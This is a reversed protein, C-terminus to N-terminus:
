MLKIHLGFLLSIALHGGIIQNNNVVYERHRGSIMNDKINRFCRVTLQWCMRLAVYVNLYDGIPHRFSIVLTYLGDFCYLTTIM